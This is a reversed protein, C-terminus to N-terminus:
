TGAKRSKSIPHWGAPRLSFRRSFINKKPCQGFPLTIHVQTPTTYSLSIIFLRIMKKKEQQLMVLVNFLSIASEAWVSYQEVKWHRLIDDLGVVRVVPGGPSGSGGPGSLWVVRVVRVFGVSWFIQWSLHLIRM